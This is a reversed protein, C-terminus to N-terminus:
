SISRQLPEQALDQRAVLESRENVHRRAENGSQDLKQMSASVSTSVAVSTPMQAREHAPDDPSGQVVFMAEGARLRDTDASLVVHDIRRLGADQVLCAVSAAM